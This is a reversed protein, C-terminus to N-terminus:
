PILFLNLKLTNIKFVKVQENEVGSQENEVGPLLISKSQVLGTGLWTPHANGVMLFTFAPSSIIPTRHVGETPKGERASLLTFTLHAPVRVPKGGGWGEEL